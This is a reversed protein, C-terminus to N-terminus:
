PHPSAPHPATPDSVWGSGTAVYIGQAVSFEAGSNQVYRRFASPDPTATRPDVIRWGHDQLARRDKEDAPHIDLAIEFEQRALEPLEIFKRFEHVKLGFAVGGFAVPGYPGRWSAVTTF